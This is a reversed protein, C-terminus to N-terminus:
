LMSVPCKCVVLSLQRHLLWIWDRGIKCDRFNIHASAACSIVLNSYPYAEEPVWMLRYGGFESLIWPKPVTTWSPYDHGVISLRATDDDFTKTNHIPSAISNSSSTHLNPVKLEAGTSADWVQVSKDESGSVICTGDSGLVNRHHSFVPSLYRSLLSILLCIQLLYGLLLFLAPKFTTVSLTTAFILTSLIPLSLQPARFLVPQRIIVLSLFPGLWWSDWSRLFLAFSYPKRLPM